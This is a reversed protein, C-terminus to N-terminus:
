QQQQQQQQAYPGPPIVRTTFYSAAIEEAADALSRMVRELLHETSADLEPLDTFSLEAFLRGIAREPRVGDGSIARISSLSQGLCFSVARPLTRELLLFAVVRPSRLEDSVQKRFAEFAGCSRLLSSLQDNMAAAPEEPRLGPVKVALLRTTTDARELHAGLDLFEYAEGRPLTAKMVGQFAHSAERIRVFFAHPSALVAAPRTRSVLLHLRNLLEWMESSIQERAGRANERARAVCTTVADPNAPHWLMFETVTQATYDSFHERFIEDRGLLSILERWARGREPLDADLLGHFNVHLLRSTDEAREIYRATWYLSEAVRSLM